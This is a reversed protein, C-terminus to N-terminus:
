GGTTDITLKFYATLAAFAVLNFAFFFRVFNRAYRVHLPLMKPVRIAWTAFLLFFLIDMYLIYPGWKLVGASFLDFDQREPFVFFRTVCFIVIAPVSLTGLLLLQVKGISIRQDGMKQDPKGIELKLACPKDGAWGPKVVM